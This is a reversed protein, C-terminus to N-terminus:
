YGLNLTGIGVFFFFFSSNFTEFLFFGFFSLKVFICYSGIEWHVDSGILFFLFVNRIIFFYIFFSIECFNAFSVTEISRFELLWLFPFIGLLFFYVTIEHFKRFKSTRYEFRYFLFFSTLLTGLLFVFFILKATKM